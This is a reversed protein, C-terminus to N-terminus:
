LQQVDVVVSVAKIAGAIATLGPVSRSTENKGREPMRLRHGADAM